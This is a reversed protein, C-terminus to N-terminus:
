SMPEQLTTTPSGIRVPGILGSVLIRCFAGSRGRGDQPKLRFDTTPACDATLPPRAQVYALVDATWAAVGRHVAM